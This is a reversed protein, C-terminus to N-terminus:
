RPMFLDMIRECQEPVDKLMIRLIVNTDLSEETRFAM